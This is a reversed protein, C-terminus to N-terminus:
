RSATTCCTLEQGIRKWDKSESLNSKWEMPPLSAPNTGIIQMDKTCMQFCFKPQQHYLRRFLNIVTELHCLQIYMLANQSINM